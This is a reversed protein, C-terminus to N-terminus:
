NSITRQHWIHPWKLCNTVQNYINIYTPGFTEKNISERRKCSPIYRCVYTSRSFQSFANVNTCKKYCKNKCKNAEKISDALTLDTKIYNGYRNKRLKRECINTPLFQAFVTLQSVMNVVRPMVFRSAQFIYYENYIFVTQIKACLVTIAM